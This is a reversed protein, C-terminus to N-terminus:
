IRGSHPIFRKNEDLFDEKYLCISFILVVM